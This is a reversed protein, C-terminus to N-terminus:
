SIYNFIILAIAVWFLWSLGGANEDPVNFAHPQATRHWQSGQELEGQKRALMAAYAERAQEQRIQDQEQEWQAQRAARMAEQQWAREEEAARQQAYMEFIFETSTKGGKRPQEGMPKPTAWARRARAPQQFKPELLADAHGHQQLLRRATAREHETGRQALVVLKQIKGKALM